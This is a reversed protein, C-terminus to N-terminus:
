VAPPLSVIQIRPDDRGVLDQYVGFVQRESDPTLRHCRVAMTALPLVRIM